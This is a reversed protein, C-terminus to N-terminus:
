LIFKDKGNIVYCVIGTEGGGGCVCKKGISFTYGM